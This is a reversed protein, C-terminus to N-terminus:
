AWADNTIEKYLSALLDKIRGAYQNFDPRYYHKAFIGSTTRGQLIDIVEAPIGEDHLYTAFIKRPYALHCEMNNRRLASRIGQYTTSSNKALGLIEADVISVFAKKGSRIFLDKFKHHQLIGLKPDHYGDFRAQVLKIGALCEIPRLGILLMYEVADPMPKPLVKVIQRVYRPMKEIDPKDLLSFEDNIRWEPGYNEIIDKWKKHIDMYKSLHSLARM